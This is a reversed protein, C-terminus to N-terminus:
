YCVFTITLLSKKFYFSSTIKTQILLSCINYNIFKKQFLFKAITQMFSNNTQQWVTLTLLQLYNCNLREFLSFFYDIFQNPGNYFILFLVSSDLYHFFLDVNLSKELVVKKKPIYLYINESLFQLIIRSKHFTKFLILLIQFAFKSKQLQQLIVIKM